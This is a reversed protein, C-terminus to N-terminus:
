KRAAHFRAEWDNVLQSDTRRREAEIRRCESFHHAAAATFRERRERERREIFEIRM